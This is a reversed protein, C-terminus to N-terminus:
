PITGRRWRDFPGGVRNAVGDLGSRYGQGAQSAWRQEDIARVRYEELSKWGANPAVMTQGELWQPLPISAHDIEDLLGLLDDTADYVFSSTKVSSVLGQANERTLTTQARRRFSLYRNSTPARRHVSDVRCQRSLAKVLYPNNQGLSVL